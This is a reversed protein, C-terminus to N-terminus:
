KKLIRKIDKHFDEKAKNVAKIIKKDINKTKSNLHIWINDHDDSSFHKLFTRKDDESLDSLVTDIVVHHVTSDIILMLEEQEKSSLNALSLVTYVSDIEILHTYFHKKM